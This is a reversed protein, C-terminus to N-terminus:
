GGKDGSLLFSIECTFLVWWTGCSLSDDKNDFIPFELGFFGIHVFKTVKISKSDWDLNQKSNRVLQLQM